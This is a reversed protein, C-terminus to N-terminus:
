ADMPMVEKIPLITACARLPRSAGFGRIKKLNEIFEFPNTKSISKM